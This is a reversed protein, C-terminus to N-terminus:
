FDRRTTTSLIVFVIIVIIIAMFMPFVVGAVQSPVGFDTAFNSMTTGAMGISNFVLSIVTFASTFLTDFAGFFSLGEKNNTADFSDQAIQTTADLKAYNEQIAPNIIANNNYEQAQGAVMLVMLAIVGSFLILAIIWDRALWQSKKTIVFKFKKGVIALTKNVM